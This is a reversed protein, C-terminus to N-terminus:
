RGVFFSSQQLTMGAFIQKVREATLTGVYDGLGSKKVVSVQSVFVISQRELSAEGVELLLDGPENTRKRNSTLACVVVTDIRSRNLVGRQLVLYPHACNIGHRDPEDPFVWYIDGNIISCESM